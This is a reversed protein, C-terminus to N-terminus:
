SGAGGDSGADGRDLLRRRCLRLSGAREGQAAGLGDGIAATSPYLGGAQEWGDKGSLPSPERQREVCAHSLMYAFTPPTLPSALFFPSPALM